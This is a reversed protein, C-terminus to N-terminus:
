GIRRSALMGCAGHIDSGGSYRRVVPAGVKDTLAARFAEREAEDPPAFEGSADNVDIVDIIAPLDGLLEALAQADAVGTNVGRLMTWAFTMRQGSAAQYERVAEMLEPLPHTGEVPLLSRRKGTEAATLSVILRYPRREETFRRIMPVIGVTSVTIARANIALGCPDAMVEAAQMVREYNLMPEGQGMFVVGRVPFRSDARVQMVQDVMEWAALNRRFGMKGTACFVCGMACGVQSSVCVVYKEDGPRHLLPIRVAEFPEPGEGQFLYKAFGDVQSVAKEVLRLRPIETAAAVAELVRRPAEPLETPADEGRQVVAAQLRRALRPTAGLPALLEALRDSVHEKFRIKESM